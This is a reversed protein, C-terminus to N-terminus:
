LGNIPIQSSPLSMNDVWIPINSRPVNIGLDGCIYIEIVWISLVLWVVWKTKIFELQSCILYLHDSCSRPVYPDHILDFKIVKFQNLHRYLYILIVILLDKIYWLNVKFKAHKTFKLTLPSCLYILWEGTIIKTKTEDRDSFDTWDNHDNSL